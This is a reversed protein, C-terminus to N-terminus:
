VIHQGCGPSIHISKNLELFRDGIFKSDRGPYIGVNREDRVDVINTINMVDFWEASLSLEDERDHFYAPCALLAPPCFTYSLPFDTVKILICPCFYSACLGTTYRDIM